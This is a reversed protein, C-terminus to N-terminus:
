DKSEIILLIGDKIEITGVDSILENSIGYPKGRKMQGDYIPYKFGTVTIGSVTDSFPILSVYPFSSKPIRKIQKALLLQIVNNQGLLKCTIGAEEALLLSHINAIVHDLRSGMGGFVIIQEPALKIAQRVALETDTEDKEQPSIVLKEPFSDKIKELFGGSVSDFDGIFYDPVVGREMLWESAGDVGIIVGQAKTIQMLTEETLLGGTFIFIEKKMIKM